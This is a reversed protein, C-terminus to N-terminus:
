TAPVTVLVACVYMEPVPITANSTYSLPSCSDLLAVAVLKFAASDSGLRWWGVGWGLAACELPLRQM